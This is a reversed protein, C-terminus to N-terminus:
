VMPYSLNKKKRHYEVLKHLQATGNIDGHEKMLSCYQKAMSDNQQCIHEPNSNGMSYYSKNEANVGKSGNDKSNLTKGEGLDTM